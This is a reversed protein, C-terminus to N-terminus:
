FALIITIAQDTIWKMCNIFTGPKVYFFFGVYMRMERCSDAYKKVYLDQKMKFIRTLDLSRTLMRGAGELALYMMMIILCSGLVLNILAVVPLDRNRKVLVSFMLSTIGSGGLLMVPLVFQGNFSNFLRNLTLLTRYQQLPVRSSMGLESVKTMISQTWFRILVFFTTVVTLGFVSTNITSQSLMFDNVGALVVGVPSDYLSRPLLEAGWYRSSHRAQFHLILPLISQCPVFLTGIQITRRILVELPGEFEEAWIGFKKRWSRRTVIIANISKVISHVDLAILWSISCGLIRSITHMWFDSFEKEGVLNLDVKHAIFLLYINDVALHVLRLLWIGRIFYNDTVHLIGLKADFRVPLCLTYYGSNAHHAIWKELPTLSISTFRESFMSSTPIVTHSVSTSPQPSIKQRGPRSM